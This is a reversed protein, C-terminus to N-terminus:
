QAQVTLRGTGGARSAHIVADYRGPPLIRLIRERSTRGRSRALPRRGDRPFLYLDLDARRPGTLRMSLFTWDRLSLAVVKARDRGISRKYRRTSPRFPRDFDARLAELQGAHPQRVPMDGRWATNGNLWTFDEAYLEGLLRSWDADPSCTTNSFIDDDVDRAFFWNRSGDNDWGCGFPLHAFNLLQNDVHHGYEHVAIHTLDPSESPMVLLGGASDREPAYCALTGEVGGCIGVVESPAVIMLGVDEIEDHHYIGSFLSAYPALDLGAVTTGFTLTHGHPDTFEEVRVHASAARAVSGPHPIITDVVPAKAEWAGLDAAQVKEAAQSVSPAALALVAALALTPGGRMGRGGIGTAVCRRGATWGDKIRSAVAHM